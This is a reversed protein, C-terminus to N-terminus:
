KYQEAIYAPAPIMLCGEKMLGEFEHQRIERPVEAFFLSVSEMAPWVMFIVSDTRDIEVYYRFVAM